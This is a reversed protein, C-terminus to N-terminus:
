AAPQFAAAIMARSVLASDVQYRGARVDVSLQELQQTRRPSNM